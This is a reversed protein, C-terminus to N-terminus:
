EMIKLSRIGVLFVVFLVVMLASFVPPILATQDLKIITNQITNSIIGVDPEEIVPDPIEDLFELYVRYFADNEIDEFELNYSIMLGTAVHINEIAVSSLLVNTHNVTFQSRLRQLSLLYAM